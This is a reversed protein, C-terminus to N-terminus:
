SGSRCKSAARYAKLKADLDHEANVSDIVSQASYGDLAAAVKTSVPKLQSRSPKSWAGAAVELWTSPRTM